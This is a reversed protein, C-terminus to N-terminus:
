LHPFWYVSFYVANCLDNYLASTNVYYKFLWKQQDLPRIIDDVIKQM